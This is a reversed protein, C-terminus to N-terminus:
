LKWEKDKQNKLYYKLDDYSFDLDEIYKNLLKDLLVEKQKKSLKLMEGWSAQAAFDDLGKKFTEWIYHGRKYQESSSTKVGFEYPCILRYLDEIMKNTFIQTNILQIRGLNDM